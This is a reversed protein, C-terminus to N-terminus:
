VTPRLIHLAAAVTYLSGAVLITDASGAASRALALAAAPEAAVRTRTATPLSSLVSSPEAARATPPQTLVIEDALPALCALMAQWNKDQLVGFVLILRGLEKRHEALFTALVQAGAPNHAGDLIIRPREDLVQLRGPWESTALGLRIASEDVRLGGARATEVAAVALVANEVQHRGVLPIRLGEYSGGPGEYDFVQGALTSERVRWRYRDPVSVLPAGMGAAAREIVALAEGRAATVVPVGAKIIGAKEGAIETVTRGLYEEHDMAVNTIVAVLPRIVNTADLRGGLGVEVVAAGTERRRFHLFAMATTLEFFTPHPLRDGPPPVTESAFHAACLPQLRATLAVIEEEGIREGNVRIRETFSILHPSTYLGTRYGAARLIAATM